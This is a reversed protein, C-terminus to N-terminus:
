HLAEGLHKIFVTDGKKTAYIRFAKGDHWADCEFDCGLHKPGQIRKFDLSKPNPSNPHEQMLALQDIRTNIEYFRDSGHKNCNEIFSKELVIQDSISDFLKTQFIEKQMNKFVLEGWPTLTYEDDIACWYISDKKNRVTLECDARRIDSLDNIIGERDDMKVPLKPIVM